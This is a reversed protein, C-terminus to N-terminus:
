TITSLKLKGWSKGTRGCFEKTSPNWIATSFKEWATKNSPIHYPFEYGGNENEKKDGVAM